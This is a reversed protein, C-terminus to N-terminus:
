EPQSVPLTTTAPSTQGDFDKLGRSGFLRDIFRVSWAAVQTQVVFGVAIVLAADSGAPGFANVAIALAISLNRLVTGYLLAVADGRALISRGIVTSILFCAAYFLTVPILIYLVIGPASAIARAKLALATFVIGLVGLTSFPPFSPGIHERFRQQGYRRLLLQRTAFGAAMPIFVIVLVRSLVQLVHVDISTGLLLKVYVPALLSGAMLGIVMMKVASETNGRAFGTWTITMGSTPILAALLLGLIMFPDSLFLRGIGFGLFPIVLFNLGQTLAQLRADGSQLVKRYQLTVMMPYVMVFTIIPVLGKLFRADLSLGFVFGLAMTVPIATVLNRNLARLLKLIM